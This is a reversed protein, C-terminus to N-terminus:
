RRARAWWGAAFGLAVLGAAILALDLLWRGLFVDLM